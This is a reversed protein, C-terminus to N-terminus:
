IALVSKGLLLLEILAVFMLLMVLIFELLM